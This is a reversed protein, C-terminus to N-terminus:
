ESDIRFLNILSYAFCFVFFQIFCKDDKNLSDLFLIKASQLSVSAISRISRRNKDIIRSIYSFKRIAAHTIHLTNNAKQQFIAHHEM